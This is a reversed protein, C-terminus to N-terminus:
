NVEAGGQGTPPALIVTTRNPPDNPNRGQLKQYPRIPYLPCWPIACDRVEQRVWNVCDLCMLKVIAATKGQECQDIIPLAMKPFRKRQETFTEAYAAMKQKRTPRGKRAARAKAMADNQDM